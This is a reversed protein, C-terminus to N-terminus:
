SQRYGSDTRVSWSRDSTDSFDFSFSKPFLAARSYPSAYTEFQAVISSPLLRCATAEPRSADPEEQCLWTLDNGDM